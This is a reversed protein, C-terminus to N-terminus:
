GKLYLRLIDHSCFCGPLSYFDPICYLQMVVGGKKQPTDAQPNLFKVAPFSIPVPSASTTELWICNVDNQPCSISRSYM